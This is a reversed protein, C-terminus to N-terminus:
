AATPGFLLRDKGKEALGPTYRNGGNHFCGTPLLVRNAAKKGTDYALLEAQRQCRLLNIAFAEIFHRRSLPSAIPELHRGPTEADPRQAKLLKRNISLLQFKSWSM